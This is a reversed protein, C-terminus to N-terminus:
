TELLHEIEQVCEEPTLIVIGYKEKLERKKHILAKDMTVFFDRKYQYHTSLHEADRVKNDYKADSIDLNPFVIEVLEHFPYVEPDEGGFGKYDFTTYEWHPTGEDESYKRAKRRRSEGKLEENMIETRFIEIVGQNHWEELRNLAPRQRRVNICCTDITM